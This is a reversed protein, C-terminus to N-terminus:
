LNILFSTKNQNIFHDCNDFILLMSDDTDNDRLNQFALEDSQKKIQLIDHVQEFDTV